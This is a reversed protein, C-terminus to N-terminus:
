GIGARPAECAACKCLPAAITCLAGHEVPVVQLVEDSHSPVAARQGRTPRELDVRGRHLSSQRCQLAVNSAREHLAVGVTVAQGIEAHFHEFGSLLHRMGHVGEFL